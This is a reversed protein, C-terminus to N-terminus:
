FALGQVSVSLMFCAFGIAQLWSKLDFAALYAYVTKAREGSWM